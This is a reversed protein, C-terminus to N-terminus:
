LDEEARELARNLLTAAYDVMPIMKSYRLRKPGIIGLWGAHRGKAQYSAMIVACSRLAPEENEEGIKIQVPSESATAPLVRSLAERQELLSFLERVARLDAFGPQDLLNSLGDVYVEQIAWNGLLAESLRKCDRLASSEDAWETNLMEDLEQRLTGLPTDALRANLFQPIKRTLREGLDRSLSVVRDRVVGGCTTMVVMVRRHGIPMLDLREIQNEAPFESRVVGAQASIIALMHSAAALIERFEQMRTNFEADMRAMERRTLGCLKVLVSVYYRYGKDTPVRGASTHPQMLYGYEELDAMTNRVTASSLDTLYRKAVTRSGVPQGNLIFEQIVTSLVARERDTIPPGDTVKDM